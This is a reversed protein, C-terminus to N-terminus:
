FLKLWEQAIRDWTENQLHVKDFVMRRETDGNNLLEIIRDAAREQTEQSMPDGEIRLCYEKEDFVKAEASVVPICAVSASERVSICDIEQFNGVYYHVNANMKEEMLETNSVRGCEIVGPQQMLELMKNKFDRLEPTQKRKDFVDWGYFIRFIADPCAKKIRPWGWKLMFYLGRDYSSSSIIYNRQKQIDNTPIILGGNPIVVLKDNAFSGFLSKHYQSKVCIKDVRNLSKEFLQAPEVLDHLDLIKLKANFNHNDLVSLARWIVLINYTDVISFENFPHYKVGNYEGPADTLCFVDVEYGAKAWRETLQIVATESGGIGQNLNKPSWPELTTPCCYVISKNSWVKGSSSKTLFKEMSIIHGITESIFGFVSGKLQRALWCFSYDEGLWVPKGENINDEVIRSHFFPYVKSNESMEIPEKLHEVMKKVIRHSIMMMGTAGYLLSGCNNARFEVSNIPEVTPRGDKKPYAGCVIDHKEILPFYKLIDDTSFLQDADIFMFLDNEQATHYWNTLELSRGKALDSQGVCLSQALDYKQRIEDSFFITNICATTLAYIESKTLTSLTLVPKRQQM